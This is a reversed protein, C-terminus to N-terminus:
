NSPVGEVYTKLGDLGARVYATMAEVAAEDTQGDKPFNSTDARYFRGIWRVTTRADGNAELMLKDNYSSVALAEPNPEGLRWAVVGREKSAVDLTETITGGDLTLTRSKGDKGTEAARVKPHWEAISGFDSLVTWVRDLPADIVVSEDTKQPTPGHAFVPSAIPVSAILVALGAKLAFRRNFSM